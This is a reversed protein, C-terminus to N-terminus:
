KEREHDGMERNPDGNMVGFSGVETQLVGGGCVSCVGM